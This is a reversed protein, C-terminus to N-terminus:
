YGGEVEAWGCVWLNNDLHPSLIPNDMSNDKSLYYTCYYYGNSGDIM